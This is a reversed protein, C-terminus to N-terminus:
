MNFPRNVHNMCKLSSPFRGAGTYGSQRLLNKSDVFRKYEFRLTGFNILLARHFGTAKLYHLIQASEIETLSKIAKLEVIISGHCIFDVRYRAGLTTGKYLVSIQEERTTSIDRCKFEFELADHYVSELFGTGLERHVEMAAGIIAYTDPDRKSDANM